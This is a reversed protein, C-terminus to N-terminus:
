ARVAVPARETSRNLLAYVVAAVVLGLYYSIDGGNMAKSIPGEYISTDMFPVIVVLAAVFAVLASGDVVEVSARSLRGKWAGVLVIGIWPAIWYSIFLLFNNYLSLLHSSSAYALVGGVVALAAAAYPRLFPLDLSLLSMTSTYSNLANATATGGIIALEALIAYGGMLTKVIAITSDNGLGLAGAMAGVLETWTCALFSGAFTNIFVRRRSADAPLYRGYDSAYPAWSFSYSAVAALFILFPGYSFGSVAAHALKANSLHSIASVTLALFMAAQFYAMVKEFRHIVDHGLYVIGLQVVIMIVYSPLLPLHTVTSIAEGGVTTNVIYWGLSSIANLGAPLYNGRRGFIRRVLPMQALGYGTSVSATSALLTSALLNGVVVGIVSPILGLGLIPGLLGVLFPPMGMNASWWLFFLQKPSGKRQDLSVQEIGLREVNKLGLGM